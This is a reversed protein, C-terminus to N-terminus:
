RAQLERERQAAEAEQREYRERNSRHDMLLHTTESLKEGVAEVLRARAYPVHTRRSVHTVVMHECETVKRWEGLDDVHLHMGVRARQRHEPEFFTCETIIIRAKRVDEALLHPGPLTDGLYAVLPVELHNVIEEGREKLERLKDQPLGQLEPKLKTRKEVVAYGISPCTHETHYARLVVNNKIEIEDGPEITILEYPTQQRELRVFGEMMARIDGEIRKDCVITGPGMGQFNRQSCWYALGGIHDMHGHSICMYKSALSARLCQGVDFCVDLEPVMVCTNEGAVSFGQVRFPPLYLFGLNGERPPPKPIM